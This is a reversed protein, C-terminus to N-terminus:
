CVMGIPFALSHFLTDRITLLFGCTRAACTPEEDTVVYDSFHVRCGSSSLSGSSSTSGTSPSKVLSSDTSQTMIGNTPQQQSSSSKAPSRRNRAPPRGYYNFPVSDCIVCIAAMLLQLCANWHTLFKWCGGFSRDVPQESTTENSASTTSNVTLNAPAPGPKSHVHIATPLREHLLGYAFVLLAMLHMLNVTLRMLLWLHFYCGSNKM